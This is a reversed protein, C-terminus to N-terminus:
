FKIAHDSQTLGSSDVDDVHELLPFELMCASIEKYTDCRLLYHKYLVPNTDLLDFVVSETTSDRMVRGLSQSFYNVIDACVILSNLKKCDFGVGIKSVTGILVRNGTEVYRQSGTLVDCPISVAELLHKLITAHNVRKVLLLFTLNPFSRVIEVILANRKDNVVQSDIVAHWDLKGYKMRMPPKFHTNVTYVTCTRPLTAVVRSPGFYTDIMADLGDFRYPTASLGLLWTPRVALLSQSLITSMILHCEDVIVMKFQKRLSFPLKHVNLANIIYIDTNEQPDIRTYQKSVIRVSMSPVFTQFTHLWQELLVIRNVIVLCKQNVISALYSAVVTKGFGVPCQIICTGKSNLYSITDAAAKEQDARLTGTFLTSTHPLQTPIHANTYAFPCILKNSLKCFKFAFCYKKMYEREEDPNTLFTLDSRIRHSHDFGTLAVVVSM